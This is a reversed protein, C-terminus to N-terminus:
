KRFYEQLFGALEPLLPNENDRRWLCVVDDVIGVSHGSLGQMRVFPTFRNGALTVGRGFAMETLLSQYNPLNVLAPPTLRAVLRERFGLLRYETEIWDWALTMLLPLGFCDERMPGGGLEAPGFLVIEEEAVATSELDRREPQQAGSFFACDIKGSLLAQLLTNNTDHRLSFNTNQKEGFFRRFGEGFAGFPDLWESIGIRLSMALSKQHLRIDELLFAYQRAQGEFLRRYMVGAETLSLRPGNRDFLRSGLEKELAIVQKSVAQPSLYMVAAAGSFSLKEAATLFCDVQNTNM